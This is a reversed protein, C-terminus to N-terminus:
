CQPDEEYSKKWITYKHMLRLLLEKIDKFNGKRAALEIKFAINKLDMEEIQEFKEKIKHIMNEINSYNDSSLMKIIDEFMQDLSKITPIIIDSTMTRNRDVFVLEGKENIIPVEDYCDSTNQKEIVKDMLFLLEDVQFPKSLYEDMGLQLFRERDGILAFATLAIIPIHKQEGDMQRIQNMAEIGDMVPMQIDMLIIDFTGDSYIKIAEQGDRAVVVRHGHQNLMKSLFTQNTLDDEALLIDYQKMPTYSYKKMLFEEPKNGHYLSVSFSFTSGEGDRSIVSIEGGMMEVLQKSIILGLGTGGYKRTFSGDIQNFSKFLKEINERAIGIGTDSITFKLIISIGDDHVKNIDIMVKGSETFKIANNILNNLVQQLRNQDGNLYDPIDKDANLVLNLGKENARVKHIRYVEGMMYNFNFNTNIIKFKGAELKSFDLIDNIISLLNDACNKATILNSSQDKNLKTMMTLDIMGNIGNIPTRIEHSMNALFESKARNAAEAEEKAKILFRSTKKIETIDTLVIAFHDAEPSYLYISCWQRAKEFYFENREYCEQNIQMQELLNYFIMLNKQDPILRTLSRDAGTIDMGGFIQNFVSNTEIIECDVISNDSDKIVKFYCFGNNMNHLLKQYKEQSRKLRQETQIFDTIDDLIILIHKKEELYIQAFNIKYWPSVEKGNILHTQQVIVNNCSFGTEIVQNISKRIDCFACQSSSGCNKDMSFVCRLGEGYRKGVVDEVNMQLNDLFAQNAQKIIYDQDLLLVSSSMTQFIIEFNNRETRIQNEMTKIRSIDRFVLVFGSTIDFSKIPSCSASVYLKHNNKTLLVTNSKLGVKIDTLKAEHIPSQMPEMTNIDVLQFVENIQKGAAEDFTWGTLAEASDNMFNINGIIDTTIVGDGICTLATALRTQDSIKMNSIKGIM